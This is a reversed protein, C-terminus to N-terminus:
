LFNRGIKQIFEEVSWGYFEMAKLQGLRRYEKMLDENDHVERHCEPCLYIKLGLREAGQRYAGALVHHRHLTGVKGCRYCERTDQIITDM